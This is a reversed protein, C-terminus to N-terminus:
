VRTTSRHTSLPKWGGHLIDYPALKLVGVCVCHGSCPSIYKDLRLFGIVYDSFLESNTHQTLIQVCNIEKPPLLIKSLSVTEKNEEQAM